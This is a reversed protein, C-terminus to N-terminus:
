PSIDRGIIQQIVGRNAGSMMGELSGAILTRSVAIRSPDVLSLYTAIGLFLVARFTSTIFGHTLGKLRIRLMNDTSRRGERWAAFLWIATIVATATLWPSFHGIFPLVFLVLDCAIFMGAHTRNKTVLMRLTFFSIYLLAFIVAIALSDYGGITAYWSFFWGFAGAAITGLAGITIIEPHM